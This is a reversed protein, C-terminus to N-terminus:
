TIIVTKPNVNKPDGPCGATDYCYSQNPDDALVVDKTNGANITFPSKEQPFPWTGTSDASVNVVNKTSNKLTVTSGHAGKWGSSCVNKESM